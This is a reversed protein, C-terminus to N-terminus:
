LSEIFKNKDKPDEKLTKILIKKKNKASKDNALEAAGALLATDIATADTMVSDIYLKSKVKVGQLEITESLWAQQEIEHTMNNTKILHATDEAYYDLIMKLEHTEIFWLDTAIPACLMFDMPENKMASSMGLVSGDKMLGSIIWHGDLPRLVQLHGINVVFVQDPVVNDVRITEGVNLFFPRLVLLLEAIFHSDLGDFLNHLKEVKAEHVVLTLDVRMHVPLQRLVALEDFVSKQTYMYEFHKM